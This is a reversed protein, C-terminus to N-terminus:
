EAPFSISLRVENGREDFSGRIGRETHTELNNPTEKELINPTILVEGM